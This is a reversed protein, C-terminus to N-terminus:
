SINDVERCCAKSDQVNTKGRKLFGVNSKYRSGYNISGRDHSPMIWLFLPRQKTHLIELSSQKYKISVYYLHLHEYVRM